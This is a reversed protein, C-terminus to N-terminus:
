EDRIAGVASGMRVRVEKEGGVAPLLREELVMRRHVSEDLLIVITSGALEFNGMEDGRSFRESGVCRKVGGVMMAGIEVQVATGFHETELVSWWRRNLRFVPVHEHAIPQVSHLQGPIYHTETMRGDDFCCFHHYDSAELRFVLCLGGRFRAALEPDPVLDALSYVSGKMPITMDGGVEYISLQGDCPSIFVGSEHACKETEKRRAFFEAFSAYSQGAFPQMDIGNKRICGAIMRKSARTHLFWAGVKFCGAKQMVKFLMRGPANTYFVDAKM